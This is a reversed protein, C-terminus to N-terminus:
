QSTFSASLKTRESTGCLNICDQFLAARKAHLLIYEWQGLKPFTRAFVPDSLASLTSQTHSGFLQSYM